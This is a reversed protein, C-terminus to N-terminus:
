EDKHKNERFGTCLLCGFDYNSNIGGNQEYNEGKLDECSKGCGVRMGLIRDIRGQFDFKVM